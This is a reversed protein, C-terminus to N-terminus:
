GNHQEKLALDINLLMTQVEMTPYLEHAKLIAATQFAKAGKAFAAQERATIHAQMAALSVLPTEIMGEDEEICSMGEYAQFRPDDNGPYDYMWAIPKLAEDTAPAARTNWAAIAEADTMHEQTIFACCRDMCAIWAKRPPHAEHAKWLEAGGGCLPCSLLEPKM